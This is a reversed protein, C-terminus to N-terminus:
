EQKSLTLTETCGVGFFRLVVTYNAYFRNCSYYFVISPPIKSDKDQIGNCNYYIEYRNCQLRLINKESYVSYYSCIVPM